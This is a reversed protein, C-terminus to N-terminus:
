NATSRNPIRSKIENLITLFEENTFYWSLVSYISLSVIVQVGFKLVPIMPLFEISFAALGAALANFFFPSVDYIQKGFGYGFTKAAFRTNIWFNIISAVIIGCVIALLGFWCTSLLAIAMVVQKVIAIRFFHGSEGCAKIINLNIVTLPFILEVFALSRLYPVAGFWKETLLTQVLSHSSGALLAVIPFVLFAMTRLITRAGNVLRQPQDKVEVFVPFSVKGIASTLGMVPLKHLSRGRAFFGVDNTSYLKGIAFSHMQNIVVGILNSGMLPLGLSSMEKLSAWSFKIQPRWSHNLWYLTTRTLEAVLTMAVLSWVGQGSYACTLGTLTGATIGGINAFFQSRFNMKKELLASQVRGLAVLIPGLSLWYMMQELIPKAFFQSVSKAMLCLAVALLVSLLCNIYFVTSADIEDSDKKQILATAYGGDALARSMEFFIAIMGMLGFDGPALERAILIGVGFQLLQRGISAAFSWRVGTQTRETLSAPM